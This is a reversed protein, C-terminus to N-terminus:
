SRFYQKVVILIIGIFLVGILFKTWIELMLDFNFLGIIITAAVCLGLFVAGIKRISM